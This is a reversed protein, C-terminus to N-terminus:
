TSTTEEISNDSPVHSQGGLLPKPFLKEGDEGTHENLRPLLTPALKKMIERKYECDDLKLIRELERLGLTRVSAALKRDNLTKGGQAM